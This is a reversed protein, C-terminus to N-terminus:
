AIEAVPAFLSRPAPEGLQFEGAGIGDSREYVLVGTALLASAFFIAIRFLWANRKAQKLRQTELGETKTTNTATMLKSSKVCWRTVFWMPTVCTSSSSGKSM